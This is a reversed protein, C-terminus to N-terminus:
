PRTAVSLWAAVSVAVTDIVMVPVLSVGTIM